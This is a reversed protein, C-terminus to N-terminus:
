PNAEPNEAWSAPAWGIRQRACVNLWIQFSLTSPPLMRSWSVSFSIRGNLRLDRKTKPGNGNRGHRKGVREKRENLYGLLFEGPKVLSIHAQMEDPLKAKKRCPTGEILPQSIGDRFGFHEKLDDNFHGRLDLPIPRAVGAM